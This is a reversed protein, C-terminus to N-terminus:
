QQMLYFFNSLLLIVPFGATIKYQVINKKIVFLVLANFWYQWLFFSVKQSIVAELLYLVDDM